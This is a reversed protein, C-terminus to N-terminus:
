GIMKYSKYKEKERNIHDLLSNNCRECLEYTSVEGNDSKIYNYISLIVKRIGGKGDPYILDGCVDCKLLYM